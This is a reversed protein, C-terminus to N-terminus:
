SYLIADITDSYAKDIDVNQYLVSQVLTAVEDRAKSSGRFAISTYFWDQQELGVKQALNQTTPKYIINGDGDVMKGSIHNQYDDSNLVDKRIPFYSTSTCWDLASEYNTLFKMFLWGALEEQADQRKFLTVNTGQQIVQPNNLDKQPYAAVGVEFSGDSPVNYSAGASSGLTMVIQGTKFADSSYNTGFFTTTKLNGKDSQEKYWRIAAKSENNNFAYVGKNNKDFKTYEGGWQKTLTIFLNSESDYSFGAVLKKDNVLAAYETTEKFKESVEAIENWTKPVNWGYKDFMTKNYYLVETSRNFPLSYLTGELDFIRCEDMFGSIYQNQEEISLGVMEQSGDAKDILVQSNIYSDLGRAVTGDIYLAVHDPYTQAVTPIEDAAIGNTITDRLTTYDGLSVQKVTINPYEQQFRTIIEAIIRQNFSGMAHWFQIQVPENYNYDIILDKWKANIVIDDSVVGPFEFDWCIFTSNEKVLKVTPAEITSFEEVQYSEITQNCNTEFSVTVMKTRYLIIKFTIVDTTGDAPVCNFYVINEGLALTYEKSNEIINNNYIDTSITYTVCYNITFLENLDITEEENHILVAYMTETMQTTQERKPIFKLLTDHINRVFKATLTIDSTVTNGAFMWKEDDVYWGTFIYGEKVPNVPKTVKGGKIVIQDPIELDTNTVFKVTYKENTSNGNNNVCGVMILMLVLLSIFTITRKM